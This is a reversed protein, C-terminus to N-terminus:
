SREYTLISHRHSFASGGYRSPISTLDLALTKRDRLRNSASVTLVPAM